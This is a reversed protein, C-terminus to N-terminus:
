VVMDPKFIVMDGEIRAPYTGKIPNINFASEFGRKAIQGNNWGLRGNGNVEIAIEGTDPDFWLDVRKGTADISRSISRSVNYTNKGIYVSPRSDPGRTIQEYKKFAM